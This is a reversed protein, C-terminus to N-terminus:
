RLYDLLSMREAQSVTALAAKYTTDAQTMRTIAEAMNADELAARRTEAAAKLSMLRLSEEDLGRTDAGLQGQARLTRDMARRVADTNATIGATDGNEIAVALSELVSFIDAPDSGQAIAQGNFSAAVSRGESVDLRMVDANGGYTWNGNSYSYAATRANTGSFLYSGHFTTNIDALLADRLSRVEAATAARAAPSVGSSSAALGATQAATLKDVMAALVGDAAALRGAAGDRSRSYADLSALGAHENVALQADIPADGARLLRRGSSVQRQAEALAEAAQNISHLGERAIDYSIRM